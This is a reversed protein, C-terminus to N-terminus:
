ELSKKEALSPQPQVLFKTGKYELVGTDTFDKYGQPAVGNGWEM